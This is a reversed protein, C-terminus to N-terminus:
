PEDGAHAGSREGRRGRGHIWFVSLWVFVWFRPVAGSYIRTSACGEAGPNAARTPSDVGGENTVSPVDGEPSPRAGGELESGVAAADQLTPAGDVRPGADPASLDARLDGADDALPGDVAFAADVGTEQTEADLALGAADTPPAQADRAVAEADLPGVDPDGPPSADPAACQEDTVNDCDDDVGDCVELGPAGPLCPVRAGDLCRPVSRQCAGVGCTSVQGAFDEDTAGDCDDDELNCLEEAPEGPWCGEARGDRCFASEAACNGLGCPEPRPADDVRGDCDEDTGDCTEPSAARARLRRAPGGCV